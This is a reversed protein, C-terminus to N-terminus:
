LLRKPLTRFVLACPCVLAVRHFGSLRGQQNREKGGAHQKRDTALRRGKLRRSRGDVGTFQFDEDDAVTQGMAQPGQFRQCRHDSVGSVMLFQICNETGTDLVM